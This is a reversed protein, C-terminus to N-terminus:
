GVAEAVLADVLADVLEVQGILPHALLAKRAAVPDRTVAAATTLREYAAVHQTLGLLEPALPKQELPQPGAATVRAPVEVVDDAALGTLTTGNRTDVVHVAGDGSALSRVLGVAAESYFAGGRRELLAPKEVLTPDRYMRLLQAEIEAVTQARPVGVQQEALVRDHSYFYHLYYSPIVGLDAHEALLEPLVDRGDLRVARIWTLHNLGVQDVLVRDPEVDLLRACMRQFTIAVNCLGVARHGADLLARTVIGVPNTFDVIWAGPAAREAVREALELMVPVTRMAKAFGGAGTTEQGICGCRLPVTEDQLRAAQGGVRIQILVFSAGDLAADLDGTRLLSGSYGARDLMRGALGGVIELREADIDHLAVEEVDLQSLHSVLEPTYTSGAGIVALKM